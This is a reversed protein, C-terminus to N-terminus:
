RGRVLAGPLKKVARKVKARIPERKRKASATKKADDRERASRAEPQPDNSYRTGGDWSPDRERKAQLVQARERLAAGEDDSLDAAGTGASVLVFLSAMCLTYLKM